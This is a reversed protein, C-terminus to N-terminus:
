KECLYLNLIDICVKLSILILFFTFPYLRSTCYKLEANIKLTDNYRNAQNAKLFNQTFTKM